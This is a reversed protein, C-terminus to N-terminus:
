ATISQGQNELKLIFDRIVWFFFPFNEKAEEKTLTGDIKNRIEKAFNVILSLQNLANEDISGMSNFIFFSSLLISFLFIWTDHNNEEDIGGFGECDM